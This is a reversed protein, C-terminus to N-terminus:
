PSGITRPATRAAGPRLWRGPRSGPRSGNRRFIRNHHKGTSCRDWQRPPGAHAERCISIGCPSRFGNRPIRLYNYVSDHLQYQYKIDCGPHNQLHHQRLRQPIGHVCHIYSMYTAYDSLRCFRTRCPHGNVHQLFSTQCEM